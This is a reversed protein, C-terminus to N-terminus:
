DLAELKIKKKNIFTIKLEKNIGSNKELWLRLPKNGIIRAVKTANATRSIRGVITKKPGLIINIPVKDGSVLHSHSTKVNFFGREYYSKTIVFIYSPHEKKPKKATSGPNKIEKKLKEKESREIAVRDKKLMDKVRDKLNEENWSPSFDQIMKNIDEKSFKTVFGFFKKNKMAYIEINNNNILEEKLSKVLKIFYEDNDHTLKILLSELSDEALSIFKVEGGEVFSFVINSDKAFSDIEFTLENDVLNWKGIKKFGFKLLREM